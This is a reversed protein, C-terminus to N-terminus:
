TKLFELLLVGVQVHGEPEADHDSAHSVSSLNSPTRSIASSAGSTTRSVNDPRPAAGRAVILEVSGKTKQLVV